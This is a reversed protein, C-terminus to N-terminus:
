PSSQSESAREMTGLRQKISDMTIVTASRSAKAGAQRPAEPLHISVHRLSTSCTLEEVAKDSFQSNRISLSHLVPCQALSTFDNVSLSINSIDLQKLQPCRELGSLESIAITTGGIALYELEYLDALHEFGSDVAHLTLSKLRKCRGLHRMGVATLPCAVQLIQLHPVDGLFALGEQRMTRDFLGLHELSPHNKLHKLGAGSFCLPATPKGPPLGIGLPTAPPENLFLYKLRPVNGLPALHDDSIGHLTLTELEPLGVLVGMDEATLEAADVSVVGHFWDRGLLRELGPEDKKQADGELVVRAGRELLYQAAERQQRKENYRHGVVGCLAGLVLMAIMFERLSFWGRRVILALTSGIIALSAATGLLIAIWLNLGFGLSDYLEIRLIYYSVLEFLLVALLVLFTRRLRQSRFRDTSAESAM